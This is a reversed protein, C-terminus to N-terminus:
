DQKRPQLFRRKSLLLAGATVIVIGIERLQFNRQSEDSQPRSVASGVVSGFVSHPGAYPNTLSRDHETRTYLANVLTLTLLVILVLLTSRVSPM